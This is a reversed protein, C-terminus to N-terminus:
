RIKGLALFWVLIIPQHLLYIWLANRGIWAPVSLIRLIPCKKDRNLRQVGVIDTNPCQARDIDSHPTTCSTSALTKRELVGQLFFGTLFLFIWPFLPYYDASRFGVFPLGFYATTLNQYLVNPLKVLPLGFFGFFGDGIGYTIAFLVFSLLLGPSPNLRKLAPYLVATLVAASGLLTLVGFYIPQLPFVFFSAVTILAGFCVLRLGRLVGSQMASQMTSQLISRTTSSKAPQMKHQTDSSTCEKRNLSLSISYGSILIFSWCISQQWLIGPLEYFWSVPYKVLHVLDWTFHYAVMSLVTLGRLIDIQQLRKHTTKSHNTM